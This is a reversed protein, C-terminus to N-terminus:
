DMSKFFDTFKDSITKLITKKEPKVIEEEEEEKKPTVVPTPEIAVPAAVEPTSLPTPEQHSHVEPQPTDKLHSFDIRQGENQEREIGDLLLGIATAYIPSSLEPPTNNALHENPHGIRTPLGTIYEVLQPLDKLESGGGTLVIGAILKKRPQDYGYNKIENFVAEIIEEM